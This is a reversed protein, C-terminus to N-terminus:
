KDFKSLEKAKKKELKQLKKERKRKQKERKAIAKRDRKLRALESKEIEIRELELREQELRQRLREKEEQERKLREREQRLSEQEQRLRELREAEKREEELKQREQEIREKELKVRELREKELREKELREKELRELELREKELREMERKKEEIDAIWSDIKNLIENKDKPPLGLNPEKKQYINAYKGLEWIYTQDKGVLLPTLNDRALGFGNGITRMEYNEEILYKAYLLIEEINGQPSAPLPKSAVQQSKMIRLEFQEEKEPERYDHSEVSAMSTPPKYIKVGPLVETVKTVEVIKEIDEKKNRRFQDPWELVTDIRVDTSLFLRKKKRLVSSISDQELPTPITETILVKSANELISFLYMPDYELSSYKFKLDSIKESIKLLEQPSFIEELHQDAGYIIQDLGATPNNYGSSAMTKMKDSMLIKNYYDWHSSLLLHGNREVRFIDPERIKELFEMIIDKNPIFVNRMLAGKIFTKQTETKSSLDIPVKVVNECIIVDPDEELTINISTALHDYVFDSLILGTLPRNDTIYKGQQLDGKSQELEFKLYYYGLGFLYHLTGKETQISCETAGFFIVLDSLIKSVDQNVYNGLTPYGLLDGWSPIIFLTNNNIIKRNKLREQRERELREQELRKREIREKELREKELREKELREKELREKELRERELKDEELKEEFWKETEENNTDKEEPEENEIKHNEM